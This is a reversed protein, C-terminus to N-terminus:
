RSFNLVINHAGLGLLVERGGERYACVLAVEEMIGTFPLGRRGGGCTLALQEGLGGEIDFM